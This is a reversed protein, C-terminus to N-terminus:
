LSKYLKIYKDTMKEFNFKKQVIKRNEKGIMERKRKNDILDLLKEAIEHTDLNCLFKRSLVEPVGGARTAIVPLGCSMAELISLNFGEKRSTLVFIDSQNYLFPLENRPRWGFFRVNKLGLKKALFLCENMEIKDYGAPGGIIWLDVDREKEVKKFTKLLIDIGKTYRLYTVTIIRVRERFNKIPKFKETDIGHYIVEVNVPCKLVRILREKLNESVAVVADNNYISKESFRRFITNNEIESVDSGHITLVSKKHKLLGVLYSVIHAYNTHVIDYDNVLGIRLPSIIKDFM